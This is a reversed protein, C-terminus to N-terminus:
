AVHAWVKRARINCVTVQSVGYDRAVARSSRPDSRIAQVSSADLKSAKNRTGFAAGNRQRDVRDQINELQTGWRLHAPNVCSPNDCSHLAVMGDPRPRGDLELAVHSALTNRGAAWMRGHGAHGTHYNWWWCDGEGGRIFRDNFREIDAQSLLMTKEQTGQAGRTVSLCRDRKNRRTHSCEPCLHKGPKTFTLM